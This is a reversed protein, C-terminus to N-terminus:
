SVVAEGSNLKPLYYVLNVGEKSVARRPTDDEWTVWRDKDPICPLKKNKRTANSWDLEPFVVIFLNRLSLIFGIIKECRGTNVLAKAVLKEVECKIRHLKWQTIRGFEDFAKREAKKAAKRIEKRNKKEDRKIARAVGRQLRVHKPSSSGEVDSLDDEDEGLIQDKVLKKHEPM